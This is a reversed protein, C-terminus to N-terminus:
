PLYSKLLVRKCWRTTFDDYVVVFVLAAGPVRLACVTPVKSGGEVMVAAVSHIGWLGSCLVDGVIDSEERM